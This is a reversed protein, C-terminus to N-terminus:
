HKENKDTGLTICFQALGYTMMILVVSFPLASIFKNYALLSDSAVFLFAGILIFLYSMSNTKSKRHIAFIAMSAIAIIYAIVPITMAGLSPQLFMFYTIAFLLTLFILGWQKVNMRIPFVVPADQIFGVIYSLHALLFSALGFIFFISTKDDFALFMDGVWSLFLGIMVYKKLDSKPAFLSTYLLLLPMLLGKLFITLTSYLGLEGFV